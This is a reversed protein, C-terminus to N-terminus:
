WLPWTVRRRLARARESTRAARRCAPAAPRPRRHLARCHARRAAATEKLDFWRFELAERRRREADCAPVIGPRDAARYDMVTGELAPDYLPDGPHGHGLGHLHGVEHAVLECLWDFDRGGLVPNIDVLCRHPWAVASGPWDRIFRIVPTGCPAPGGWHAEAAALTAQLDPTLPAAPRAWYADDLRPYVPEEAAAMHATAGPAATCAALAVALVLIGLRRM